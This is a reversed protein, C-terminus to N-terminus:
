KHPTQSVSVLTQVLRENGTPDLDWVELDGKVLGGSIKSWNFLLVLQVQGMGGILWLRMDQHLKARGEMEGTEVM